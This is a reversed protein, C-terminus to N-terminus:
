TSNDGHEEKGRCWVPRQIYIPKGIHTAGIVRRPGIVPKDRDCCLAVICSPWKEYTMQRCGDCYRDGSM